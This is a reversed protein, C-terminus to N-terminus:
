QVMRNQQVKQSGSDGSISAHALLKKEGAARQLFAVAVTAAPRTHTKVTSGYSKARCKVRVGLLCREYVDIDPHGM